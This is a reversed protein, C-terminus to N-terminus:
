IDTFGHLVAIFDVRLLRLDASKIVSESLSQVPIKCPDVTIRIQHSTTIRSATFKATICIITNMIRHPSILSNICICYFM